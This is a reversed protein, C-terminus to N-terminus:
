TCFCFFLEFVSVDTAKLDHVHQTNIIALMADNLDEVEPGFMVNYVRHLYLLTETFVFHFHAYHSAVPPLMTLNLAEFDFSVVFFTAKPNSAKLCGPKSLINM